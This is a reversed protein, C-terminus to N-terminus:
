KPEWTFPTLPHFGEHGKRLSQPVFQTNVSKRGKRVLLYQCMCVHIYIIGPNQYYKSYIPNQSKYMMVM